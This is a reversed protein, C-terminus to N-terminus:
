PVHEEAAIIAAVADRVRYHSTLIYSVEAPLDNRNLLLTLLGLLGRLAELLAAHSARLHELEHNLAAIHGYLQEREDEHQNPKSEARDYTM